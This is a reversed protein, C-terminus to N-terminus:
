GARRRHTRDAQQGARARGVYAVYRATLGAQRPVDAIADGLDQGFPKRAAPAPTPAQQQGMQASIMQQAQEPTTGEPVQFRGVRGDPMQFRAIPM